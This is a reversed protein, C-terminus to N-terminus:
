SKYATFECVSILAWMFSLLMQKEIIAYSSALGIALGSTLLHIYNNTYLIEFLKNRPSLGFYKNNPDFM